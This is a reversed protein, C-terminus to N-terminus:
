KKEKLQDELAIVKARLLSNAKESDKSQREATMVRRSVENIKQTSGSGQLSINMEGTLELAKLLEKNDSALKISANQVEEFRIKSIPELGAQEAEKVKRETEGKHKYLLYWNLLKPGFYIYTGMGVLPLVILHFSNDWFPYETKIKTITDFPDKFGGLLAYCIDWNSIIWSTIFSTVFPHQFKDLFTEPKPTSEQEAM